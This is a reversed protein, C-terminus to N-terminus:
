PRQMRQAHRDMLWQLLDPSLHFTTQALRAIAEPLDILARDAAEDLVRLTGIVPLHRRVAEKRGEYDDMILWNAGTEEALFIAEREGAGLYELDATLSTQVTRVELWAPRAAIWSRVPEPSRSRQLEELVASPILVTDYLQVLVDAHGILVLYNLPTTDAIVILRVGRLRNM